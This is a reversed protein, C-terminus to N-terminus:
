RMLPVWCMEEVYFIQNGLRRHLLLMAWGLPPAGAGAAVGPQPGVFFLPLPLWLKDYPTARPKCIGSWKDFRHIKGDVSAKDGENIADRCRVRQHLAAVGPFCLM